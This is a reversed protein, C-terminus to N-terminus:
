GGGRSRGKCSITGTTTSPVCTISSSFCPSCTIRMNDTSFLLKRVYCPKTGTCSRIMEFKSFVDIHGTLGPSRNSIGGSLKSSRKITVTFFKIIQSICTCRYIINTENTICIITDLYFIKRHNINIHFSIVSGTSDYPMHCIFAGNCIRRYLTKDFTSCVRSSQGTFNAGDCYIIRRSM